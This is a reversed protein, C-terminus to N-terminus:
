QYNAFQRESKLSSVVTIMASITHSCCRSLREALDFVYGVEACQSDVFDKGQSASFYKQSATQSAVLNLYAAKKEERFKKQYQAMILNARAMFNTLSILYEHLAQADQATDKDFTQIINLYQELETIIQQM